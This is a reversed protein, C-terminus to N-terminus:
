EDKLMYRALKDLLWETDAPAHIIFEADADHKVSAIHENEGMGEYKGGVIGTEGGPNQHPATKGRNMWPYRSIKKHRAEIEKFRKRETENM